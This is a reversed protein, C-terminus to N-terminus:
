RRHAHPLPAHPRRPCCDGGLRRGTGPRPRRLRRPIGPLGGRADGTDWARALLAAPDTGAAPQGVFAEVFDGVALEDVVAALQEGRDHPAIWTGDRLPGFGLFSLRGRLRDRQARRGDGLEYSVVTWTGDWRRHDRGFGLIRAEGAGLARRTRESLRYSVERGQKARELLGRRVLRALAARAAEPSSGFRGLLEVLGGAWAASGAPRHLLENGLITIAVDQPQAGAPM